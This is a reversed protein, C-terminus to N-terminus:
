PEVEEFDPDHMLAEHMGIFKRAEILLRAAHQTAEVKGYRARMTEITVGNHKEIARIIRTESENADYPISM